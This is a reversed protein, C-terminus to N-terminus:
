SLGGNKKENVGIKALLKSLYYGIAAFLVIMAVYDLLFLIIPEDFDFFVFQTKLLMYDGIQRMIFAYIGYASIGACLIRASLKLWKSEKLSKKMSKKMHGLMVSWHLGIHVSMLVFGWYAGLLHIVQASSAGHQINLFSFVQRSLIIGSVGQFLIDILLLLNVATNLIRVPKYRGKFLTRFWRYNLIHHAVFLLLMATGLWEHVTEGILSYAMLLPLLLAMCLDIVIQLKRKRSM